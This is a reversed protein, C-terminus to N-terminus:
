YKNLWGKTKGGYKKNDQQSMASKLAGLTFGAPLLGWAKHQDILKQWDSAPYRQAKEILEKPLIFETESSRSLKDADEFNAVNYKMAESKPLDYKLIELPAGEEFNSTGSELYHKLRSPNKDFWQGYYKERAIMDPDTQPNILRRQWFTLNEGAAQRARLGAALNMAPDQGIPRARYLSVLDEPVKGSNNIDLGYRQLIQQEKTLPTVETLTTAMKGTAPPIYKYNPDEAYRAYPIKGKTLPFISQPEGYATISPDTIITKPSYRGQQPYLDTHTINDVFPRAEETAAGYNKLWNGATKGVSGIGKVIGEAGEAVTGADIIKQIFEDARQGKNDEKAWKTYGIPNGQDDRGADRNIEHLRQAHEEQGYPTYVPAPGMHQSMIDTQQRQIDAQVAEDDARKQTYKLLADVQKQSMKQGPVNATTTGVNIGRIPDNVTALRNPDAWGGSQYSDLWGGYKQSPITMYDALNKHMDRPLIHVDTGQPFASWLQDIDPKRCNICGFSLDRARPDEKLYAAGRQSPAYTLHNAIDMEKGTVPDILDFYKYGYLEKENPKLHFTGSPTVKKSAGLTNNVDAYEDHTLTVEKDLWSGAGTLVPFSSLIKHDKIIYGMNKEKDVVYGSEIGSTTSPSLPQNAFVPVPQKNTNAPRPTNFINDFQGVNSFDTSDIPTSLSAPAAVKQIVQKAIHPAIIGKKQLQNVVAPLQSHHVPQSIINSSTNASSANNGIPSWTYSNSIPVPQTRITQNIQAQKNAAIRADDKNYKQQQQSVQIPPTPKTEPWNMLETFVPPPGAPKQSLNDGAKLKLLLELNKDASYDYGQVGYQQALEARHGKSYDQGQSALYDVISYNPHAPGGSQYSNLWGGNKRTPVEYVQQGPFQYEGGPLMYQQNGYNDVGMVPHPVNQMTIRGSPILNYPNYRDPSDAKYGNTSYGGYQKYENVSEWIRPKWTAEYSPNPQGNVKNINQYYFDRGKNLLIRRNNTPLNMIDGQYQGWQQDLSQQLDPTWQPSKTDVNYSGRNPIGSQGKSKLYQDLMYVRPDRGTNYLFDGAEGKEMASPYYDLKGSGAIEQMYKNVAEQKTQPATWNSPVQNYPLQSQHYGWDSLPTGIPSGKRAEYDMTQGALHKLSDTSPSNVPRGYQAKPVNSNSYGGIQYKKLWGM